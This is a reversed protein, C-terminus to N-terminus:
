KGIAEIFVDELTQKKEQISTISIHGTRLCDIIKDLNSQDRIQIELCPGTTKFSTVMAGLEAKIPEINGIFHIEFFNEMRIISQIDGERILQGAEIIGVRSCTKEVESLLHSNIFITKGQAKLRLIIERIERRGVPDVGETPEDLFILDPNHYIAQALGLRQKMGKSFKRIKTKRWDTLGVLELLENILREDPKTGYLRGSLSLLSKPTHYEPLRHDEPLYGTRERARPQSIPIDFLRGIGKTPRCIGLLIKVLTTKGAGNRGLLGFVEGKTVKLSVGKLAQIRGYNKALADTEIISM